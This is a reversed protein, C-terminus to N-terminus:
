IDNGPTGKLKDNGPTGHIVNFGSAPDCSAANPDTVAQEAVFIDSANNSDGSVLNSARSQFAIFHGDGSISAIRSDGNGESGSSDVSVRNTKGTQRDHVFIDSRFNSDGSVLNSASSQYTVFRGDSSISPILIPGNGQNGNSDVSVRSTTRTQLDHVFIDVANNTDDSVLNSARSQFAVFRGDGSISANLSEGNAESGNSDVSVRSTTGMQQDHVFIDYAGNSDGSVLNSARSQFAVFRGDSSISPAFSYDNGESGSSDVSVRSTTGVQRDHVFIDPRSNSDGSVLNSAYSEFAVFRGNSSISAAQSANNGQSGSSHVSVRSTTRTQLDHVFVDHNGNTDGSVFNSALSDFAVFRGDGSISPADSNDNGPNDSSDVSVRNTKGTQRDHVFIHIIDYSTGNVLTRAFSDFAVYRGDSSM